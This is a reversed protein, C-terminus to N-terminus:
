INKRSLETVGAGAFGGIAGCALGYALSAIGVGSSGRIFAPVAWISSILAGTLAGAGTSLAMSKKTSHKDRLFNQTVAGIVGSPAGMMAGAMAMSTPMATGPGMRGALEIGKAGLFMAGAATVAGAAGGGVTEAGTRLPERIGTPFEIGDQMMRLKRATSESAWDLDVPLIGATKIKELRIGDFRNSMMDHGANELAFIPGSVIITSIMVALLKNM